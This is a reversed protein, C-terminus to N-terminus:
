EPTQLAGALPAPCSETQCLNGEKELLSSIAREIYHLEQLDLSKLKELLTEADMKDGKIETFELWQVYDTCILGTAKERVHRIKKRM